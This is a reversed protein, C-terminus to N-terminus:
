CLNCGEEEPTVYKVQQRVWVVIASRGRALARLNGFPAGRPAPPLPCAGMRAAPCSQLDIENPFRWGPPTRSAPRVSDKQSGSPLPASWSALRISGPESASSPPSVNIAAVVHGSFDRIPAAM